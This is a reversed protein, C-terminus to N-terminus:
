CKYTIHRTGGHRGLVAVNLHQINRRDLERFVQRYFSRLKNGRAFTHLTMYASSLTTDIQVYQSAFQLHHNEKPEKPQTPQKQQAIVATSLCIALTAWSTLLFFRKM